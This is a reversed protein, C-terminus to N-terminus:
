TECGSTPGRREAAGGVRVEGPEAAPAALAALGCLRVEGLDRLRAAMRLGPTLVRTVRAADGGLSAASVHLHCAQRRRVARDLGWVVRQARVGDPVLRQLGRLPPLELSVPLPAAAPSTPPPVALLDNLAAVARRAPGPLAAHWGGAGGTLLALEAASVVEHGAPLAPAAGAPAWTAPVQFRDLLAALAPALDAGEELGSLDVSVVLVGLDM